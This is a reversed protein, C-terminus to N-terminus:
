SLTQAALRGDFRESPQSFRGALLLVQRERTMDSLRQAL